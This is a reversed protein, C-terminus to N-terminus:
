PVLACGQYLKYAGQVCEFVYQDIDHWHGVFEQRVVRLVPASKHQDSTSTAPDGREVPVM